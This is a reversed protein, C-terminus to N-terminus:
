GQSRRLFRRVTRDLRQKAAPPVRNAMARYAARPATEIRTRVYRHGRPVLTTWVLVDSGDTFRRKYPQDGGGLDVRSDGSDFAHRIAEIITLQSPALEGFAPDFGGLWYSVEGGAAVFLHASITQGDTEITWLRFRLPDGLATAADALMAAVDPGWVKSGGRDAWRATHLRGFAELGRTMEDPDGVLRFTGGGTELKRRMRNM